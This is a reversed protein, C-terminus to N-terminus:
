ASPKILYYVCTTLYNRLVPIKSILSNQTKPRWGFKWEYIPNILYHTKSIVQFGTKKVIKEFREISIGTEKVELLSEIVPEPENFLKFVSKYLSKPLLHFYPVKSLLSQCMQQHGGFPMQWPPFGFYIVGSPTLFSKLRGILQSQDHIHEIVDKLVIIDFQGGLDYIDADYIDEVFFSINGKQIDEKLWSRGNVVRSEDLEVGVGICNRNVFSKLVGGEGAGIELVRMGDRILIKNEIFPIVYKEANWIQIDFYKKRDTHFEFM